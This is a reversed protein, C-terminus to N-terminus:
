RREAAMIRATRHVGIGHYGEESVVPEGIHMGIRIRIVGEEPWEHASLARQAGAAALAADRARGFVYFFSDVSPTSMM